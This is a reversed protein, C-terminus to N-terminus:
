AVLPEKWIAFFAPWAAESTQFERARMPLRFEAGFRTM